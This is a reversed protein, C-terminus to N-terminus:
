HGGPTAAVAANGESAPNTSQAGGGIIAAELDVAALFADRRANIAAVNSQVGERTTTLLEMVDVLMGNYNLLMQESVTKRLPLIKGEYLRAIDHNARYAAYAARVESRANVAREMLRNAAQMYTERAKRTEPEGLDFIPIQVDLGVGHKFSTEFVGGANSRDYTGRYSVDILSVFRTAQTLGLEKAMADLDLRMAALDTRRAIAEAEADPLARIKPTRPLQAPIRYEIDAGWLGLMRTLTERESTAKLRAQALEGTVEAQFALARAQALKTAGGTEGLKASLEAIINASALAQELSGVVTRAAVARYWARRTEAATRFTAEIARRRAAEFQTRAIETRAPLTVLRLLDGAIKREIELTAGSALKDIAFTPNPLSGAAVYDAEAIGLTNYDAQLGRNNLLAIQVAADADIAKKLYAEVRRRAEAAQEPAAIKVADKAIASSVEASVPTMGGDATFSACGSLGLSLLVASRILRLPALHGHIWRM